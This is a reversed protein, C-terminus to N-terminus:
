DCLVAVREQHHVHRMDRPQDGCAKVGAWERMGIKHGGCGVLGQATRPAAHDERLRPVALVQVLDDEGANLTTRQHMDDCGLSDAEM